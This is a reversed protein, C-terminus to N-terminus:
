RGLRPAPINPCDGPICGRPPHGCDAVFVPDRASIDIIVATAAVAETGSPGVKVAAKHVVDSVHLDNWGNMASFDASKSFADTMKMAELAARLDLESRIQFSGPSRDPRRNASPAWRSPAKDAGGPPDGAMKTAFIIVAQDGGVISPDAGPLVEMM